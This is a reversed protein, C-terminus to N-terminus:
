TRNFITQLMLMEMKLAEVVKSIKISVFSLSQPFVFSTVYLEPTPVKYITSIM